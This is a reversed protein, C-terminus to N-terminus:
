PIEILFPYFELAPYSDVKLTCIFFFETILSLASRYVYLDQDITLSWKVKLRNTLWQISWGVPGLNYSGKKQIVGRFFFSLSDRRPKKRLHLSIVFSGNSDRQSFVLSLGFFKFNINEKKESISCISFRNLM